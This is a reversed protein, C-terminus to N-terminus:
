GLACSKADPWLAANLAAACRLLIGTRVAPSADVSASFVADRLIMQEELEFALMWPADADRTIGPVLRLGMAVPNLGVHADIVAPTVPGTVREFRARSPDALVCGHGLAFPAPVGHRIWAALRETVSTALNNGSLRTPLFNGAGAEALRATARSACGADAAHVLIYRSVPDLLVRAPPASRLLDPVIAHLVGRIDLAIALRGSADRPQARLRAVLTAASPM